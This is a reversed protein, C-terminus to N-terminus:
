FWKILKIKKNILFSLVFIRSVHLCKWREIWILKMINDSFYFLVKVLEKKLNYKEELLRFNLLFFFFFITLFFFFFWFKRCGLPIQFLDESTKWGLLPKNGLTSSNNSWQELFAWMMLKIWRSRMLHRELVREKQYIWAKIVDDAYPTSLEGVDRSLEWTSDLTAFCNRSLLEGDAM